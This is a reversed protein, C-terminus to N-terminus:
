NKNRKSTQSYILFLYKYTKWSNVKRHNHLSCIFCPILKILIIIILRNPVTSWTRHFFFGTKNVKNKNGKKFQWRTKIEIKMIKPGIVFPWNDQIFIFTCFVVFIIRWRFIFCKDLYIKKKKLQLKYWLISSWNLAQNMVFSITCGVSLYYPFYKWFLIPELDQKTKFINQGDVAKMLSYLFVPTM